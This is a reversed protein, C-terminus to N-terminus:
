GVKRKLLIEMMDGSDSSYNQSCNEKVIQFIQQWLCNAEKLYAQSMTVYPSAIANGTTPHQSLYGYKSVMQECQIWRSASMAYQEILQRSVLNECNREELWSFTENFIKEAQLVTGDSQIEKAFDKVSPQIKGELKVSKLVEARKGESIKEALPAKKRGAGVRSGGRNTGDKAMKEGEKLHFVGFKGVFNLTLINEKNIGRKFLRKNEDFDRQTLEKVLCLSKSGGM